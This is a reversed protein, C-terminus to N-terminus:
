IIYYTRVFVFILCIILVIASISFFIISGLVIANEDNPDSGLAILIIYRCANMLIGAIGQGTSMAIIFEFPLFSVIGYLCSLVVANALGQLLIIASTIIFGTLGKIFVVVIPLTFLSFISVILSFLIQTKYSIKKKTFLLVFQFVVNFFSNM